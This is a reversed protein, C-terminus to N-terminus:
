LIRECRGEGNKWTSSSGVCHHLQQAGAGKGVGTRRRRGALQVAHLHTDLASIKECRRRMSCTGICHYLQQAGAGQGFGGGGSRRDRKAAHLHTDLLLMKVGGKRDKGREKWGRVGLQLTTISSNHELARALAVAGGGMSNRQICALILCCFSRM